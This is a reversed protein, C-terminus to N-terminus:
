KTANSVTAKLIPGAKRFQDPVEDFVFNLVLESADFVTATVVMKPRRSHNRLLDVFVNSLTPLIPPVSTLM